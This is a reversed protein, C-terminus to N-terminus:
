KYISLQRILTAIINTASTSSEVIYESRKKRVPITVHYEEDSYYISLQYEEDSNGYCKGRQVAHEKELIRKWEELQGRQQKLVGTVQATVNSSPDGGDAM